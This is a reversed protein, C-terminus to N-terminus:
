ICAAQPLESSHRPQQSVPSVSFSDDQFARFKHSARDWVLYEAYPKGRVSHCLNVHWSPYWEDTAITKDAPGSPSAWSSLQWKTEFGSASADAGVMFGITGSARAARKIRRSWRQWLDPKQYMVGYECIVAAVSKTQLAEEYAAMLHMPHQEHVFIFHAPSVGYWALGEASICGQMSSYSPACWIFAAHPNQHIIRDLWAVVFGTASAEHLRNCILHTHGLRLGGSLAEDLAPVHSSIRQNHGSTELQNIDQKLKLFVHRNSLVPQTSTQDKLVYGPSNM